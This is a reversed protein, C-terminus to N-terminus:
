SCHSPEGYHLNRTRQVDRGVGPKGRVVRCVLALLRKAKLLAISVFRQGALSVRSYEVTWMLNIAVARWVNSHYIVTPLEQM